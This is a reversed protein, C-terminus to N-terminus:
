KKKGFLKGLGKVTDALNGQQTSGTAGFKQKVMRGVDPLFRPKASTGSVKFPIGNQGTFGSAISSLGGIVGANANVAAVMAFNLDNKPSVTGDGTLEGLAPVVLKLGNVKLGDPGADLGAGFLQIATDHEGKLGALASITKMQTALDYGTLKTNELAVSGQGVPRATTGSVNLDLKLTGGQLKAGSPLVIGFSPLLAQLDDVPLSNGSARIGLSPTEGSLDYNGAIRLAAAGTRLTMSQIAGTHRALEYATDIDIEVPKPSQPSNISFRAKDAKLKGKVAVTKGNSRLSGNFDTVAAFAPAPGLLGSHELDLKEITAKLDFPTRTADADDAPGAQGQLALTGGGAVKLDVKLPVTSKPAIPGLTANVDQFEIPKASQGEQVVTVRGSELKVREISLNLPTKAAPAKEPKETKAGLSAYNWVGKRNQILRVQPERITIGTVNLKRSFILPILEVGIALSKATVFPQKSFAADDAISLDEAKAGGSFLSISLSGVKTQRGLSKSAQAELMPRFSEGNVLFPVLAALLVLIGFVIGSVLLFKKVSIDELSGL